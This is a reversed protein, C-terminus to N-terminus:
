KIKEKEIISSNLFWYNHFDGKLATFPIPTKGQEIIKRELYNKLIWPNEIYRTNLNLVDSIVQPQSALDKAIEELSLGSLNLNDQFEQKTKTQEERTLSM